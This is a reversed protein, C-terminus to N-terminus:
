AELSVESNTEGSASAAPPELAAVVEDPVYPKDVFRSVGANILATKLEPELYGSTVVVRANSNEEQIQRLVETGSIRPLDLDLLVVDITEKNHRYLRVATEGDVATLVRYGREALINRLLHLVAEEDEVVLATGYGGDPAPVPPAAAPSDRHGNGNATSLLPLLIQFTTGKGPASRVDVFGQHSKVVGYVV